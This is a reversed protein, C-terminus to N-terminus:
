IRVTRMLRRLGAAPGSKEGSAIPPPRDAASFFDIDAATAGERRRLEAEVRERLEEPVKFALAEERTLGRSALFRDTEARRLEYQEIMRESRAVMSRAAAIHAEAESIRGDIEGDIEKGEDMKM